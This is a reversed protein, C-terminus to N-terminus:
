KIYGLSRLEEILEEDKLVSKKEQLRITYFFKSLVKKYQAALKPKNKIINRKELPDKLKDYFLEVEGNIYKYKGDQISKKEYGYAIGETIAVSDELENRKIKYILDIGEINNTKYKIGSSSLITPMIDLSKVQQEISKEPIGKGHFILPVELLEGFMTHGHDIGYYGRPDEYYKKEFLAHDWFEEGHDSTIVIIKENLPSTDLYKIFRGIQSDIFNLAGDYLAIKHSRYEKFEQNNLSEGIKFSWEHHRKNHAKNDLTPYLTNYPSPPHTPVHVDMFHLYMFFPSDDKKKHEETQKKLYESIQNIALDVIEKANKQRSYFKKEFGQALGFKESVFYNPAISITNYGNENFAEALTLEEEKLVSPTNEQLNYMGNKDAVAGVGIQSPYKSSFISAMSPLTWSSQAICNKFLIGNEALTDIYPTTNRYYGYCSLHDKRLADIVIIIINVKSKEKFILSIFVLIPIFAIISIFIWKKKIYKIM